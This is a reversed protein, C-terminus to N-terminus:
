DALGQEDLWRGVFGAYGAWAYEDGQAGSLSPDMVISVRENGGPAGPQQAFGRQAGAGAICALAVAIVCWRRVGPKM